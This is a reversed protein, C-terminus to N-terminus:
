WPDRSCWGTRLWPLTKLEVQAEWCAPPSQCAATVSRESKHPASKFGKFFEALQHKSGWNSSSLSFSLHYKRVAVTNM